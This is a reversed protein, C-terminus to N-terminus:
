LSTGLQSFPALGSDDQGFLAESSPRFQNSAQRSARGKDVSLKIAIRRNSCWFHSGSTRLLGNSSGALMTINGQTCQWCQDRRPEVRLERWVCWGGVERMFDTDAGFLKRQLLLVVVLVVVM